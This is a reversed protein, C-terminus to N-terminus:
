RPARRRVAFRACTGRPARPSLSLAGDLRHALSRLVWLGYGHEGGRSTWGLSAVRLRDGEPLGPGDDEVRIVCADGEDGVAISVATGGVLAAALANEALQLLACVAVDESMPLSCSPASPAELAVRRRRFEGAIVALPGELADPALCPGEHVERPIRRARLSQMAAAHHLSAVVRRLADAQAGADAACLEIMGSAGTLPGQLDHALACLANAGLALAGPSLAGEDFPGDDVARWAEDRILRLAVLGGEGRAILPIVAGRPLESWPAPIRAAAAPAHAGLLEGLARAIPDVLSM